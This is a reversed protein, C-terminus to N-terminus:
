VALHSGDRGREGWMAQRRRQRGRRQLFRDECARGSRWAYLGQARRCTASASCRDGGLWPRSGVRHGARSLGPTIRCLCPTVCLASPAPLFQPAASFSSAVGLEPSRTGQGAQPDFNRRHLFSREPDTEVRPPTRPTADRTDLDFHNALTRDAGLKWLHRPMQAWLSMDSFLFASEEESVMVLGSVSSTM